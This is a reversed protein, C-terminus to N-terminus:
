KTNKIYLGMIKYAENLEIDKSLREIFQTNYKKLYPSMRLIEPNFQTSFPSYNFAVQEILQDYEEYISNIKKLLNYSTKISCSTKLQDDLESMKKQLEMLKPIISDKKGNYETSIEHIPLEPKPTYYVKKDVSDLQIFHPLDKEFVMGEYNYDIPTTKIDPKVGKGQLSKKTIRYLGISTTKVYGWSTNEDVFSSLNTQMIPDLSQIGQGTAKGYTTQGVIIGRNYDQIAGAVLESASASGNNVLFILPGRYISGRHFDKYTYIDGDATKELVVPGYNIFIGVLDIAEKISGGGNNRLDIILGEISNKKLKLISKAIDNACGLTSTDTWNTYFDPLSIYGVKNEGDLVASKIIDDNSYVKSKTLSVTEVVGKKTKLELLITKSTLEDFFSSLEKITAHSVDLEKEENSISLIADGVHIEDSYWAASGPTVDTILIEGNIESQYSIGFLLHESSLEETFSKKLNANFYNSHPDYAKAISNMYLLEMYDEKESINTFYNIYTKRTEKIADNMFILVSDQNYEEDLNLVNILENHLTKMIRNNWRQNFEEPTSVNETHTYSFEISNDFLDFKKQDLVNKLLLRVEDIRKLFLTEVFNLYATEGTEIESSLQTSKKNILQIDEEYFFYKDEDLSNLFLDNVDEGFSKDITRPQLHNVNFFKVLQESREGVGIAINEQGFSQFFLALLASILYSKLIM